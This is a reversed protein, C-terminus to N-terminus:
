FFIYVCINFCHLKISHWYVFFFIFLSLILYSYILNYILYMIHMLMILWRVHMTCSTVNRFRLNITYRANYTGGLSLRFHIPLTWCTKYIYSGTFWLQSTHHLVALYDLYLQLKSCVTPALVYYFYYTQIWLGVGFVNSCEWKSWDLYKGFKELYLVGNIDRQRSVEKFNLVAYKFCIEKLSPSYAAQTRPMQLPHTSRLWHDSCAWQPVTM